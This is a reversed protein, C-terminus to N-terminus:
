HRDARRPSKCWVPLQQRQTAVALTGVSIRIEWCAHVMVMVIVGAVPIIWGLTGHKAQHAGSAVLFSSIHGLHNHHARLLAM